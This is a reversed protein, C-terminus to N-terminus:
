AVKLRQSLSAMGALINEHKAQAEAVQAELVRLKEQLFDIEANGRQKEVAAAQRWVGHSVEDKALQESARTIRSEIDALEDRRAVLAGHVQEAATHDEDIASLTKRIAELEALAVKIKASLSTM